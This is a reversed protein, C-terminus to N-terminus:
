GERKRFRLNWPQPFHSIPFQSHAEV